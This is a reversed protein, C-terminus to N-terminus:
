EKKNKELLIKRIDKTRMEKAYFARRKGGKIDEFEHKINLDKFFLTNNDGKKIIGATVGLADLEEKPIRDFEKNLYDMKFEKKLTRYGGPMKAVLEPEEIVWVWERGDESKDSINLLSIYKINEDDSVEKDKLFSKFRESDRSTRNIEQFTVDLHKLDGERTKRVKDITIKYIEGYVTESNKATFVILRDNEELNEFKIEDVERIKEKADEKEKLTKEFEGEKM